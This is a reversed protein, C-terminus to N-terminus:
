FFRKIEQVLFKLAKEKFFTKQTITITLADHVVHINEYGMHFSSNKLSQYLWTFWILEKWLLLMYQETIEWFKGILPEVNIEFRKTYRFDPDCGNKHLVIQTVVEEILKYYQPRFSLTAPTSLYNNHCHGFLWNGMKWM